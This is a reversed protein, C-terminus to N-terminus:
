KIKIGFKFGVQGDLVSNRAWEYDFRNQTLGYSIGYYVKNRVYLLELGSGGFSWSSTSLIPNPTTHDFNVYAGLM